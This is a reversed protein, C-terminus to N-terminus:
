TAGLAEFAQVLHMCWVDNWMGCFRSVVVSWLQHEVFFFFAGLAPSPASWPSVGSPPFFDRKNDSIRFCVFPLLVCLVCGGGFLLCIAGIRSSLYVVCLPPPLAHLCSELSLLLM